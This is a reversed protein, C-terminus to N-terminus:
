SKAPPRRASRSPARPGSAPPLASRPLEIGHSVANRVLHLVPDIMREILYKDIETSQGQLELSIKKGSERALDRVVFPMRRFIEGIPVLRIRMVGERLTRLQRDIAASNEQVARWEVPPVHRELRALTDVLRARSIVLDGIGQMLEDLRTLDVRVVHSPSVTGTAAAAPASAEAPEEAQDPTDIREATVGNARLSDFASEDVATQVTFQFAITGDSRVQPAADVIRGIASLQKRVADVGIGRALLDRTPVFVCRWAATPAAPAPAPSPSGPVSGELTRSAAPLLSSVRAIVDDIAPETRDFRHAAILVELRRTGEILVDIGETTLAIERARVGRLYDEMSHSLHEAPRFEVMASIGKLSHFYRFLEDIAEREAGDAGLSKELSLLAGCPAM